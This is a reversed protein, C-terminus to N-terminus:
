VVARSLRTIRYPLRELQAVLTPLDMRDAQDKALCAMALANAEPPIGSYVDSPPVIPDNLIASILARQSFGAFPYQGTLLRYFTVGLSYVDLKSADISADDTQAALREPAMILLTGGAAQVGRSSQAAVGFDIIVPHIIAGKELPYKLLINETKIDLHAYGVKHLYLLGRSVQYIISAAVDLPLTGGHEIYSLLPGGHMYEMAYYWPNGRVQMAKATVPPIRVNPLPLPLLRVINPHNLNELLDAEFRLANGYRRDTEAYRSVKLAAEHSGDPLSAHYVTAMGGKAIAEHIIFPGVMMNPGLVGVSM